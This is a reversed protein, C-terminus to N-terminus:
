KVAAHLMLAKGIAFSFFQLQEQKNDTEGALSMRYRDWLVEPADVTPIGYYEPAGRLKSYLMIIVCPKTDGTRYLGKFSAKREGYEYEAIDKVSYGKKLEVGMQLYLKYGVTAMNYEEETTAPFGQAKVQNGMLGLFVIFFLSAIHKM